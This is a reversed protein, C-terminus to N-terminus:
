VCYELYPRMLALYMSFIVETTRRAVSNRICALIGNAKKAVQVCQQRMNLRGDILVGMEREAESSDLWETALSYHQLPNNQGFQLIQCETKNFRQRPKFSLYGAGAPCTLLELIGKPVDSTVPRWSSAVGNVVVRQAWGDLWNKVWCLTCRDLGHAAMKNLLISHSVTDFAKSFDLYVVDVAKRADVLRTVQKYFLNDVEEDQNPPRYCVGVLIDAKNAKGRIRLWLFGVKNDNVELEIADLSERIYLAVGGGRRGCRGRRFLKYGDMAASCDHSDDWWIETIAVMDYSEQHVIAKLEEHKNNMSHATTYVCKLQAASKVGQSHSVVRLSMEPSALRM